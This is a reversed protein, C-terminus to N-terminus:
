LCHRAARQYRKKIKESVFTLFAKVTARDTAGAGQMGVVFVYNRQWAMGTISGAAAAVFAQEKITNYLTFSEAGERQTQRHPLFYAKAQQWNGLSYIDLSIRKEGQKYIRQHASQVGQQRMTPVAGDYITYLVEDTTGGRDTGVMIQWSALQGSDPLFSALLSEATVSTTIRAVGAVLIGIAILLTLCKRM